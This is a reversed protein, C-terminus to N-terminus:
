EYLCAMCGRRNEVQVSMVYLRGRKGNTCVYLTGFLIEEIECKYLFSMDRMNGMLRSMDYLKEYKGNMCVYTITM